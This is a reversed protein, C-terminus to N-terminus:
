TAIPKGTLLAVAARVVAQQQSVYFEERGGEALKALVEATTYWTPQRGVEHDIPPGGDPEVLFAPIRYDLRAAHELVEAPYRFFALPTTWATGTIGAEERAERAAAKWPVSAEDEEIHGKPFTWYRRDKTRVLLFHVENGDRRFCIAAAVADDIPQTALMVYADTLRDEYARRIRENVFVAVAIALLALLGAFPLRWDSPRTAAMHILVVPAALVLNLVTIRAVRLRTRQYDLFKSIGDSEKMVVLRMVNVRAPRRPVELGSAELLEHLHRDFSDSLRDIVIGVSYAAALMLVTILAAWEKVGVAEAKIAGLTIPHGALLGALLVIWVLAQVGAIIIEVFLATTAM